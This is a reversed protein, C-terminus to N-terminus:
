VEGELRGNPMPSPGEGMGQSLTGDTVLTGGPTELNLESQGEPVSPVSPVSEQPIPSCALYRTWVDEFDARHYGRSRAEGGRRLTPKPGFEKLLAALRHGSLPRGHDVVGWQWEERSNLQELLTTTAVWDPDGAEEFITRINDILTVTQSADRRKAALSVAARRARQPWDGGALDAIAFLSEWCDQGRDSLEEPLEPRASALTDVHARAWASLRDHIPRAPERAERFRFREVIEGPKKRKMEIAISRDEITDPLAGIGALAKPCFVPFDAVHHGKGNPVCLTAKKGRRYGDNLIQLLAAAYEKERDFSLGTEDLLFTPGDAIKRVLAAVSARSTLWPSAVIMELVELLLTKGSQKEASRVRLYGTTTAAEFAHTHVTWLSCADYQEGTLVVYREIFARVEDLLAAGDEPPPSVRVLASVAASAGPVAQALELLEEATGGTDLWDSVDGKDPLDPLELIRVEAAIGKLSAAVQQAHERGPDDNDPLIAVHRGRLHENYEPKWKGAGGSNTTATLGLGALRDADKEGECIFVIEAPDAAMLEPLRYLVRRISQIGWTDAGPCRQPFRKDATRCVEFVPTGREDHYVYSAVIRGDPRHGDRRSGPWLGRERLAAIVAEQPCSGTFCFLLLKGREVKVHLSPRADDHSPCHTLGTGMASAKGCGCGARGCAMAEVIRRAQAVPDRSLTQSPATTM